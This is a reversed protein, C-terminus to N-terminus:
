RLSGACVDGELAPELWKRLLEIRKQTMLKLELCRCMANSTGYSAPAQPYLAELHADRYALWATQAKNFAAIFRTDERHTKLITQRLQEIESNNKELENCAQATMTAQTTAGAPSVPIYTFIALSILMVRFGYM